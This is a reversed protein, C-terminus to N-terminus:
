CIFRIYFGKKILQWLTCDLKMPFDYNMFGASFCHFLGFDHLKLGILWNKDM